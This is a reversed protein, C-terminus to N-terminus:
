PWRDFIFSNGGIKLSIIWKKIPNLGEGVKVTDRNVIKRRKVLLGTSRYSVTWVKTDLKKLNRRLTYRYVQEM